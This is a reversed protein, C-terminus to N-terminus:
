QSPKKKRKSNGSIINDTRYDYDTLNCKVNEKTKEEEKKRGQM